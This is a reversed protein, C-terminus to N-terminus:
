SASPRSFTSSSKASSCVCVLATPASSLAAQTTVPSFAKFSQGKHAYKEAFPFPTAAPSVLHACGGAELDFRNPRAAAEILPQPAGDLRGTRRHRGRSPRRKGMQGRIPRGRIARGPGNARTEPLSGQFRLDEKPNMPVRIGEPITDKPDGVHDASGVHADGEGDRNGCPMESSM